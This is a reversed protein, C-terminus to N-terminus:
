NAWEVSVDFGHRVVSSDTVLRLYHYRGAFEDASTPGAAGTYRGDLAWRGGRWSYVELFDYSAELDFAGTTTLRIKSAGEPAYVQKWESARNGYPHATTFREFGHWAPGAQWACTSAACAWTGPVAVHPLAACDAPADCYSAAVCAGSADPFPAEFASVDYRCRNDDTCTPAALGGCTDGIQGCAGPHRVEVQACGAACGNSYTRGDVGCVPNFLAPCVCSAAEVCAGAECTFGSACTLAGGAGCTFLDEIQAILAADDAPHSGQPRTSAYSAAGVAVSVAESWNSPESAGPRELVHGDFVFRVAAALRDHDITGLTTVEVPEGPRYFVRQATTGIARHGTHTGAFGGGITHELAVADDAACATAGRCGCVDPTPTVDVQGAACALVPPLPCRVATRYEIADVRFGDKVVSADTSLRVTLRQADGLAGWESWLNDRNGDFSQFRGTASELHVYDYGAETRISAFHVRADTACSPVRGALDIPYARDLDNGYPHASEVAIQVIVGDGDSKGEAPAATPSGPPLESELVGKDPDIKDTCAAALVVVAFVGVSRLNM